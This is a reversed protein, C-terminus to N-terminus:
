YKLGRQTFPCNSICLGCITEEIGLKDKATKRAHNFCSISDYLDERDMKKIWLRGSIANGPCSNKCLNCTYPCLSTEIPKGSKLKANTLVVIIRLASGFEETVLLGSKGIWGMGSLTAITKYPLSSSFTPSSYNEENEVMPRLIALASYGKNVLWNQTSKALKDLKENIQNFEFYYKEIDENKTHFIAEKSYNVGIVIGYDYNQRIDSKLSKLDAFGVINAGNKLLFSKIEITLDM